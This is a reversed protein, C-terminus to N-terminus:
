VQGRTIVRLARAIEAMALIMVALAVGMGLVLMSPIYTAGQSNAELALKVAGGVCIIGCLRLPWVVAGLTGFGAHITDPDSQAFPRWNVAATVSDWIRVFPDTLRGFGRRAPTRAAPRDAPLKPARVQRTPETEPRKFLRRRTAASPEPPTTATVVPEPRAQRSQPQPSPTYSPLKPQVESFSRFKRSEGPRGVASGHKAILEAKRQMMQKRLEKRQKKTLHPGSM